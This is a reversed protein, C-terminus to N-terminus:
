EETPTPRHRAALAAFVDDPTMGADRLVLLSHFWLDAMENALEDRSRNKAAIIVEAAEEGVKKVVRDTGQDLLKVVYSGEPRERVRQAIVNWLWELRGARDFGAPQVVDTGDLTRYFCGVAGTHCAPGVPECLYLLADNECNRRVERVYLFNGSEEGKMWPRNRSRSWFHAKGTDVTKQVMERNAYAPILVEGTRADQAIVQVLGDAGFAIEDLGALPDSM